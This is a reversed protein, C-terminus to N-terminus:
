TERGNTNQLFTIHNNKWQVCTHNKLIDQSVPYDTRNHAGRSEERQLASVAVCKAARLANGLGRTNYHKVYLDDIIHCANELGLKTRLVGVHESMTQRLQKFDHEHNRHHLCESTSEIVEIPTKHTSLTNRINEAIRTAFVVAELLSNSALRNAGHMGTAAVEGCAWLGDVSTRGWDDTRVGGMHYHAAPAIPILQTIPDIDVALCKQYAAPFDEVFRHGIANRCDLFAGRKELLEKHVAKAVIDRSALEADPHHDLMFRHGEANVLIAGEGRLSETVLPAPDQEVNIATPHFQVFEADTIIAGAQAALGIGDGQSTIPNTTVAYLAGIGGTALIITDTLAAHTQASSCPNANSFHLGCVKNDQIILEDAQYGELIQISPMKRAEAILASMIAKGAMDGKVRVVRAQSHAAERSQKLKGHLDKDFPVGYSLLDYIRKPAEYAVLKAIAEDVLGAGAALTDAIHKDPHDGEGLAAAIGGQAWASSAGTGLPTPCLLTVPHPALKLAAFIGALGAGIILVTGELKINKHM